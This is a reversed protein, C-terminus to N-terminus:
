AVAMIPQNQDSYIWLRPSNKPRRKMGSSRSHLRNLCFPQIYSIHAGIQSRPTRPLGVPFGYPVHTTENVQVAQKSPGVHAFIDVDGTVFTSRVLSISFARRLNTLVSHPLRKHFSCLQLLLLSIDWSVHKQPFISSYVCHFTTDLPYKSPKGRVQKGLNRNSTLLPSAM